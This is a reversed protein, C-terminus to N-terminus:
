TGIMIQTQGTGTHAWSHQATEIQDHGNVAELFADDLSTKM